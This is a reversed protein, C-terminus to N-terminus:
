KKILDLFNKKFIREEVAKKLKLKKIGSVVPKQGHIHNFPYDSGFIIKKELGAQLYFNVMPLTASVATDFWLNEFHPRYKPYLAYAGLMGGMHAALIKAKPHARILNFLHAASTSSKKFAHDIHVMLFVKKQQIWTLLAEVEGGELEYDQWDPNIKFGVAGAKLCREAETKWGAFRLHLSCIGWFRSDAKIAELVYDNNEQCLSPDNWPFSVLAAREIGSKKMSKKINEISSMALVEPGNPQHHIAEYIKRESLPLDARADRLRAPLAYVHADIM